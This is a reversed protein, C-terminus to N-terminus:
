LLIKTYSVQPFLVIMENVSYSVKECLNKFLSFESEKTAKFLEQVAKTIKKMKKIVSDKTPMKNAPTTTENISASTKLPTTKYLGNQSSKGNPSLKYYNTMSKSPSLKVHQQQQQPSNQKSNLSHTRIDQKNILQQKIADLKSSTKKGNPKISPSQHNHNITDEEVIKLQRNIKFKYYLNYLYITYTYM